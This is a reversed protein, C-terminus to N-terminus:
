SVVQLRISYSGTGWSHYHRVRVFYRGQPLARVIRANYDQGSDDDSAILRTPADPGYLAMVVDTNGRTEIACRLSAPHDIRFHYHDEEGHQAIAAELVQGFLLENEEKEAKPYMIGIFQKDTASLVTNWGIAFDGATLEDPVAYQMISTPDFTSFNTLNASYKNLVQRDVEEPPWGQTIRYYDYM